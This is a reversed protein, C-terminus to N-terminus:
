VAQLEDRQVAPRLEREALRDRQLDATLVLLLDVVVPALQRLATSLFARAAPELVPEAQRPLDDGLPERLQEAVRIALLRLADHPRHERHLLDLDVLELPRRGGRLRRGARRYM